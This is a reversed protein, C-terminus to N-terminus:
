KGYDPVCRLRMVHTNRIHYTTAYVGCHLICEKVLAVWVRWLAEKRHNM